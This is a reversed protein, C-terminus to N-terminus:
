SQQGIMSLFRRLISSREMKSDDDGTKMQKLKELAERNAEAREAALEALKEPIDDHLSLLRVFTKQNLELLESEEDVTITATRPMEMMLSMEGFVAGPELNFEMPPVGEEQTILGLLKGRVLVYLTSGQDGQSFLTEGRTYLNRKVLPAMKEYDTECLLPKGNSDVCFRTNFDSEQLDRVTSSLERAEPAMKRQNYVVAMFDNLLKDSMPFPIEIGRRKFKYWIMRNVNGEVPLRTFYRNSWFLLQYNVGYDQFETVYAAPVPRKLVESVSTAAELLAEIVEEPADSYSAGVNIRHRRMPNPRSMNNIISNAVEANPVVINEGDTTRLRTERWNTRIVKGEVTGIRVWDSPFITRVINLSMGALLNGLVGQLAFGIVATLLATSALLPAIDIGMEIKLVVFATLLILITRLLALLLDPLPFSRKRLAFYQQFLGQVLDLGLVIMWFLKWARVHAMNEVLWDSILPNVRLLWIAPYSLLLVCIPNAVAGLLSMFGGSTKSEHGAGYRRRLPAAMMSGLIFVLLLITAEVIHPLYKDM